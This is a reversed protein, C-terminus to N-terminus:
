QDWFINIKKIYQYYKHLSLMGNKGRSSKKGGPQHNESHTGMQATYWNGVLPGVVAVVAGAVTGVVVSWASDSLARGGQVELHWFVRKLSVFEYDASSGILVRRPQVRKQFKNNM